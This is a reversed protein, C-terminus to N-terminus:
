RCISVCFQKLFKLTNLTQYELGCKLNSIRHRSMLLKQLSLCHRSFCTIYSKQVRQGTEQTSIRYWKSRGDDGEAGFARSIKVSTCAYKVFSSTLFVVCHLQWAIYWHSQLSIEVVSQIYRLLLYPWLGIFTAWLTGSRWAKMLLLMSSSGHSDVSMMLGWCHSYSLISYDMWFRLCAIRCFRCGMNGDCEWFWCCSEAALTVQFRSFFPVLSHSSCVQQM